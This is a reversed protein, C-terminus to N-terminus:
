SLLLPWWSLGSFPASSYAGMYERSFEAWGIRPVQATWGDTPESGTEGLASRVDASSYLGDLAQAPASLAEERRWAFSILSAWISSAVESAVSSADALEEELGDRKALVADYRRDTRALPASATREPNASAAVKAPDRTRVSGNGTACREIIRGADDSGEKLQRAQLNWM